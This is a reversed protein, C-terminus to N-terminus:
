HLPAGAGTTGRHVPAAHHLRMRWGAPTLEYVNTVTVLAPEGAEAGIVELGTHVAVGGAHIRDHCEFRVSVGGTSGLIEAWSQMVARHGSLPPRGPHICMVEGRGSWADQMAALSGSRFAAYFAAECEDPTSYQQPGTGGPASKTM